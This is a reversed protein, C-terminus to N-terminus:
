QKNETWRHILQPTGLTIFRGLNDGVIYLLTDPQITYLTSPRLTPVCLLTSLRTFIILPNQVRTSLDTSYDKQLTLIASFTKQRVKAEREKGWEGVLTM